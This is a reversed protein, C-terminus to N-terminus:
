QFIRLFLKFQFLKERLTEPLNELVFFNKVKKASECYNQLFPRLFPLKQSLSVNSLCFHPFERSFKFIQTSFLGM